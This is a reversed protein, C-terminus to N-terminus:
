QDLELVLLGGDAARQLEAFAATTLRLPRTPVHVSDRATERLHAPQRPEPDLLGGPAGAAAVDDVEFARGGESQAIAIGAYSHTDYQAAPRIRGTIKKAKM